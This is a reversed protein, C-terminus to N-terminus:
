LSIENLIRKRAKPDYHMIDVENWAILRGCELDQGLYVKKFAGKGVLRDYQACAGREV